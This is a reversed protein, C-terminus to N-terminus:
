VNFIAAICIILFVVGLYWIISIFSAKTYGGVGRKEQFHDPFLAPLGIVIALALITFLIRNFVYPEM